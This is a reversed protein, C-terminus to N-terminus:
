GNGKIRGLGEALREKKEAQAIREQLQINYVFKAFLGEQRQDTNQFQCGYGEVTGDENKQVRLIKVMVSVLDNEIKFNVFLGDGVEFAAGEVSLFIGGICFNKISAFVPADFEFLEEGRQFASVICKVECQVKYYRRREEMVTGYDDRILINLQNPLSLKVRGTYKIRDGNKMYAIVYVNSDFELEPYGSGKIIMMNTVPIDDIFMRPFSFQESEAAVLPRGDISTISVRIVKAKDLVVFGGESM